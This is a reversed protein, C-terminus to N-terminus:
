LFGDVPLYGVIRAGPEAIVVTWAVRRSQLPLYRLAAVSQGADRALRDVELQSSPFKAVIEAIPRAAHWAQEAQSAYSRWQRPDMSLDVGSMGLQVSRFAEAPDSPRVAAIHRPGSWSLERLETPAEALSAPDIEAASVVRIRDVEFSLVVPRALGMSYLGYGLACAQVVAIALLDRRLEAKPKGPSAVVFTLAPGAIVDVSMLLTFLDVGGAIIHFPPPYWALFVVAAAAAAVAASVLLHIAAARLRRRLGFRPVPAAANQAATVHSQTSPAHYRAAFPPM